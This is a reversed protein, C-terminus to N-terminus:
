YEAPVVSGGLHVDRALRVSRGTGLHYMWVAHRDGGGILGRWTEQLVVSDQGPLYALALFKGDTPFDLTGHTNGELDALVYTAESVPEGRKRCLLRQRSEIWVAGELRCSAALGEHKALAGSAADWSRIAAHGSEELEFLLVGPRVEMLRTVLAQGYSHIVHNASGPRQPVAYLVSGDDYVIVGPRALYVAHSGPYLDASEGTQLDFWSIRSVRRRNVSASEAILLHDPGLAGIERIVTDGLHGEISLSGDRLSFRMLYAGQGFFLSGQYEPPAPSDCAALM